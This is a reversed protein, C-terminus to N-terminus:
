LDEYRSQSRLARQERTIKINPPAKIGFNIADNWRKFTIITAVVKGSETDTLVIKENLKSELVLM